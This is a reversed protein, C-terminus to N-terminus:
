VCKAKKSASVSAPKSSTTPTSSKKAATKAPSPPKTRPRPSKSSAPSGSRATSGNATGNRPADQPSPCSSTPSSPGISTRSATSTGTSAITSSDLPSRPISSKRRIDLRSVLIKPRTVRMHLPTIDGHGEKQEGQGETPGGISTSPPRMSGNPNSGMMGGRMFSDKREPRQLLREYIVDFNEELPTVSASVLPQPLEGLYRSYHTRAREEAQAFPRLLVANVWNGTALERNVPHFRKLERLSALDTPNDPRDDLESDRQIAFVPALPQQLQKIKQYSAHPSEADKWAGWHESEDLNFPRLLQLVDAPAHMPELLPSSKEYPRMGFDHLLQDELSLRQAPAEEKVEKLCEAQYRHAARKVNELVDATWNHIFM